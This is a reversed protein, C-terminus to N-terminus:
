KCLNSAPFRRSLRPRGCWTSRSRGWYILPWHSGLMYNRLCEMIGQELFLWPTRASEFPLHKSGPSPERHSALHTGGRWASYYSCIRSIGFSLPGQFNPVFAESMRVEPWIRALQGERFLHLDKLNLRIAPSVDTSRLCGTAHTRWPDRKPLIVVFFLLGEKWGSHRRPSLCWSYQCLLHM